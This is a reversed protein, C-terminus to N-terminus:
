CRIAAAWADSGGEAQSSPRRQNAEQRGGGGFDALRWLAGHFRSGLAGRAIVTVAEAMPM